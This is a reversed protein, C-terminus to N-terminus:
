YSLELDYIVGAQSTAEAKFDIASEFIKDAIKTANVNVEVRLAPKEGPGDLLKRINPNEFSLDKIYQGVVRVQLPPGASGAPPQGPNSGNDSPEAMAPIRTEPSPVM